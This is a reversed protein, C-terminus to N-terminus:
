NPHFCQNPDPPKRMSPPFVRTRLQSIHVIEGLCPPKGLDLKLWTRPLFACSVCTFQRTLIREPSLPRFMQGVGCSIGDVQKTPSTYKSYVRIRDDFRLRDPNIVLAGQFRATAMQVINTIAAAYQIYMCVQWTIGRRNRPFRLQQFNGAVVWGKLPM